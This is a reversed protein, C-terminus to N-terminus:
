LKSICADMGHAKVLPYVCGCTSLPVTQTPAVLQMNGVCPARSAFVEGAVALPLTLAPDCTQRTSSRAPLARVRALVRASCGM